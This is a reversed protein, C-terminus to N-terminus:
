TQVVASLTRPHAFLFMRYEACSLGESGLPVFYGSGETGGRAASQGAAPGQSHTWRVDKNGAYM